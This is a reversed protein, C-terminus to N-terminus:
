FTADISLSYVRGSRYERKTIGGDVMEEDYVLTRKSDTINEIGLTLTFRDWLVQSVVLTLDEYPDLYINPVATASNGLFGAASDLSEGQAFYSLTVRTGWDPQDFQLNFNAIWEPQDFLPRDKPAPLFPGEESDPDFDTTAYFAGGLARGNPRDDFPLGGSLLQRFSEPVDVTADIFTFNGGLSFYKLFDGDIFDLSKRGEIEIGRITATNPNNFFVRTEVQGNLITKEIPNEIEKDFLSISFLDTSDPFLYELRLDINEADSPELTPNGSEWDLTVPNRSTIYAFEKFSPRILNKSWSARFKLQESFNIVLNVAPLVEERDILGVFDSPLPGDLGLILANESARIRDANGPGLRLLESNFFENDSDRNTSTEMLLKEHRLGLSLQVTDAYDIEIGVFSSELDRFGDTIAPANIGATTLEGLAESITPYSPGGQGRDFDDIDTLGYRYFDQVIDRELDEVQIGVYPKIIWRGSTTPEWGLKGSWFDQKEETRRWAATAEFLDPLDTTQGTKYSGDPLRFGSAQFSNYETQSTDSFSGMWDLSLGGVGVDFYHEGAVQHAKFEREEDTFSVKWYTTDKFIEFGGVVGAFDEWVQYYELAFDDASTLNTITGNERISASEETKNVYFFTYLLKHNGRNDLDIQFSALAHEDEESSSEIFDFRGDSISLDGNAFDGDSIIRSNGVRVINGRGYFARRNDEFGQISSFSNGRAANLRVALRRDGLYTLKGGLDFGYSWSTPVSSEQPSLVDRSQIFDEVALRNELSGPNKLDLGLRPRGKGDVFRDEAESNWKTGASVTLTWEEPFVNTRIDLTGGASNGPLEPRFSKSVVLNSVIDSPFLDLPISQREPDPSPVPAGNFLTSSYRENLGRIVAFQGDQVTIGPIRKIAEAVDGAAFRSLDASSLYDVSAIADKRLVIFAYEDDSIEEASVVFEEMVFIEGENTGKEIPAMPFNWTVDEGAIVEVDTLTAPRHDVKLFRLTYIGSDVNGIRYRGNADTRTERIIEGLGLPDSNPALLVVSVGSIPERTNVNLLQGNLSGRGVRESNTSVDSDSIAENGDQAALGTAATFLLLLAM